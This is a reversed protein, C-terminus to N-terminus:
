KRKLLNTIGKKRIDEKSMEVKEGDDEVVATDSILTEIASLKELIPALAELVADTVMASVDEEAEVVKPKKEEEEDEKEEEDEAEIVEEEVEEEEVEVKAIEGEEVTIVAEEGDVMATIEGNWDEIVEGSETHIIIEEDEAIVDTEFALVKQSRKKSKFQFHGQRYKLKKTFKLKTKKMKHKNLKVDKLQFLGDISLGLKGNKILYDHTEKSECQVNVCTGGIPLDLGYQRKLMTRKEKTDVFILEFIFADLFDDTHEDTFISELGSMPLNKMMQKTIKEVADATFVIEYEGDKDDYRYIDMPVLLPAVIQMKVSDSFLLKKEKQKSLAIGKVVIAPDDTFAIVKVGYKIEELSNLDVELRKM